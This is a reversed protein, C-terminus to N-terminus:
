SNSERSPTEKHIKHYNKHKKSIVRSCIISTSLFRINFALMASSQVNSKVLHLNACIHTEPIIPIRQAIQCWKYLKFLTFFVWLPTNSKTFNCAEVKSFTVSRWPHKDCKEFQVFLILDSLSDWILLLQESLKLKAPRFKKVKSFIPSRRLHEVTITSRLSALTFKVLSNNQYHFNYARFTCTVIM